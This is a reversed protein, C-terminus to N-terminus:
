FTSSGWPETRSVRGMLYDCETKHSYFSIHVPSLCMKIELGSREKFELSMYWIGVLCKGFSFEQSSVGGVEGESDDEDCYIVVRDRQALVKFKDNVGGKGM